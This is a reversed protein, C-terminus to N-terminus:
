GSCKRKEEPNNARKPFACISISSIRTLLNCFYVFDKFVQYCKKPFEPDRVNQESHRVSGWHESACVTKQALNAMRTFLPHTLGSIFVAPEIELRIPIKLFERSWFFPIRLDFVPRHRAAASIASLKNM